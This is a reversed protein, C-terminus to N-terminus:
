RYFTYSLSIYLVAEVIDGNHKNLANKAADRSVDSLYLVREISSILVGDEYLLSTMKYLKFLEVPTQRAIRQIEWMTKINTGFDIRFKYKWFEVSDYIMYKLEKNVQCMNILDNLSMDAAIQQVIEIPLLDM